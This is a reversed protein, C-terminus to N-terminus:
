EEKEPYDIVFGGHGNGAYLNKVLVEKGLIEKLDKQIVKEWPNDIAWVYLTAGKPDDLNLVQINYAKQPKNPSCQNFDIEYFSIEKDKIYQTIKCEVANIPLKIVKKGDFKRKSNFVFVDESFEAVEFLDSIKKIM